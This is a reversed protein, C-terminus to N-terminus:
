VLSSKQNEATGENLAKFNIITEKPYLEKLATHLKDSTEKLSIIADDVHGIVDDTFRTLQVTLRDGLAAEIQKKYYDGGEAIGARELLPQVTQFHLKSRENLVRVATQFRGEAVLLDM